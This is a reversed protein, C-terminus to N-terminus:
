LQVHIFIPDVGPTSLQLGHAYIGRGSWQFLLSAKIVDHGVSAVRATNPSGRKGPVLHRDLGVTIYHRRNYAM